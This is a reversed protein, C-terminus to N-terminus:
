KQDLIARLKTALDKSSFPKQIFNVGENLMGKSSIVDATYGSMFLCKIEPILHVLREALNQGNMEPMIVDSILLDIHDSNEKAIRIAESPSPTSLVHYGFKEMMKRTMDIIIPEDEVLLITERGHNASKDHPKTQSNKSGNDDEYRPLFIKFTTGLGPESYIIIFGKNQKVIGYVTSLGLGTGKGIEKTTYFPEFIHEITEKEMGCGDDRFTIMVFEGPICGSHENCYGEDLVINETKITINGDGTIADRSNVCLNALIQDVQSPDIKVNFLNSGPLWSLKVNEVIIRRLMNLIGEITENLNIVKPVATQKRAFALLQKVLETSNKAAKQIELFDAYHPHASDLDDMILETYGIIIALKNNFDHAVGGALRGISEMKQAQKLQDNLYNQEHEIRKRETIDQIVGFLIREKKDFFAISHLDKLEGSDVAKIKFEVDYPQDNEILNNLAVDLIQRYEPLPINKIDSFDLQMKEMGYIRFAGDSATIKMSDLLLEWNGSKSVFEARNLRAENRQLAEEAIKHDTVDRAVSVFGIIKDGQYIPASSVEAFLSAGSKAYLEYVGKYTGEGASLVNNSRSIVLPMSEPPIIDLETFDKDILEDQKYGLLDEVSKSIGRIKYKTDIWFIVDSVNEFCMRFWEESEQLAIQSRKIDTIDHCHGVYGIFDGKSNYRPCGENIIWRYEGDNRRLRYEMSFKERRDFTDNYIYLCRQLDESHVGEVWGNGIEQQLTRGTFELWIKNFYNYLKDPGSTWILAQGSDALTKYNQESEITKSRARHLLESLLGTFLGVLIFAFIQFRDILNLAAFSQMTPILYFFVGFAATLTSVAAPGFGGIAASLLIPIYLVILMPRQLYTIPVKIRFLLVIITFTLALLYDFWRPFNDSFIYLNSSNNGNTVKMDERDPIENLSFLLILATLFIFILGKISSLQHSLSKLDSLYFVVEDSLFIWGSGFILYLLVAYLIFRKRKNIKMILGISM